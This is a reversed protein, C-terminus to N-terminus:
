GGKPTLITDPYWQFLNVLVRAAMEALLVMQELGEATGLRTDPARTSMSLVGILRGDSATIPLAAAATLDAYRAQQAATLGFSADSVADGEAIFFRGTAWAKGVAGQGVQFFEYGDHGPTLIPYLNDAALDHLWVQGRCGALPADPHLVFTELIHQGLFYRVVDDAQDDGIDDPGPLEDSRALELTTGGDAPPAPPLEVSGSAGSWAAKLGRHHLAGVLVLITGAAICGGALEDSSPELRAAGIWLGWGSGTLVISTWQRRIVEFVRRGLRKSGQTPPM